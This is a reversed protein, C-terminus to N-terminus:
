SNFGKICKELKEAVKLTGIELDQMKNVCNRIRSTIDDMYSISITENEGSLLSSFQRFQSLITILKNMVEELHKMTKFSLNISDMDSQKLVKGKRKLDDILKKIINELKDSSTSGGGQMLPIRAFPGYLVPPVNRKNIVSQLVPGISNQSDPVFLKREQSKKLEFKTQGEIVDNNEKKQTSHTQFVAPNFNLYHVLMNFFKLMKRNNKVNEINPVNEKELRKIWPTVGEMVTKTTTGENIQFTKFGYSKLIQIAIQPHINKIENQAAIAFTDDTMKSIRKKYADADQKLFIDTIFKTCESQKTGFCDNGENFLLEEEKGSDNIKNLKGSKDL